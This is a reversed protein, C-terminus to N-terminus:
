LTEVEQYPDILITDDGEFVVDTKFEIYIDKFAGDCDFPGDLITYLRKKGTVENFFPRVKDGKVLDKAYKKM